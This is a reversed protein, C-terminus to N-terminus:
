SRMEEAIPRASRQMLTWDREGFRSDIRRNSGSRQVGLHRVVVFLFLGGAREIALIRRPLQSKSPIPQNAIASPTVLANESPITM